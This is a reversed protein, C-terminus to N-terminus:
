PKHLFQGVIRLKTMHMNVSADISPVKNKVVASTLDDIIMSLTIKMEKHMRCPRSLPHHAIMRQANAEVILGIEIERTTKPPWPWLRIVRDPRQLKTHLLDM